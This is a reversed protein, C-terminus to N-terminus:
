KSAELVHVNNRSEAGVLGAAELDQAHGKETPGRQRLNEVHDLLHAAQACPSSGRRRM